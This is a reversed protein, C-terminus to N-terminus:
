GLLDAGLVVRDVGPSGAVSVRALGLSAPDAGQICKKFSRHDDARGLKPDAPKLPDAPLGPVLLRTIACPPRELALSWIVHCLACKPNSKRQFARREERTAGTIM